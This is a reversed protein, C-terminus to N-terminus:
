YIMAYASSSDTNNKSLYPWYTWNNARYSTTYHCIFRTLVLFKGRRQFDQLNIWWTWTKEKYFTSRFRLSHIRSLITFYDTEHHPENSQYSAQKLLLNSAELRLHIELDENAPYAQRPHKYPDWPEM